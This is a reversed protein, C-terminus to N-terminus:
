NQIKIPIIVNTIGEFNLKKQIYESTDNHLFKQFIVDRKFILKGTFVTMNRESIHIDKCEQFASDIISTGTVIRYEADLGFKSALKMYKKMEKKRKEVLDDVTDNIRLIKQDVVVVSIFIIKSYIGKFSRIINLFTHIGFGNYSGVLQVAIYGNAIKNIKINDDFYVTDLDINEELQNLINNIKNYHKYIALSILVIILTVFLTIWGGEAIKEFLIIILTLVSVSLGILFTFYDQYWKRGKSKHSHYYKVMAFHSITFTIFVNISYMIVLQSISGNTYFLLILATIGIIAIGNKMTLQESFNAFKRPMWGDIAMNAIIRPADIFGTQAGVLLLAGESFITIFAIIYGYSLNNFVSTALVANLTKGEVFRIDTLVYCVYLGGAAISLSLAMYLMTRKASKVKPERMIQLGNSVAELGTYTGGGMSFAKLFILIIGVIGISQMDSNLSVSINNSVQSYNGINNIIGYGILLIHTIIFLIFIPALIKISEKTGRMNLIILVIILIAAFYIKLYHYQNPFYSFIANACSVISVTVTLIYDIILASGSVLGINKGLITSAVIYGGGGNPFHEILKSYSYSIVLVTIITAIAIFIGLYSYQGLARFAEEPGYASSSLGDAGLGIWALFPLLTIKHFIGPDNIDKPDGFVFYKFKTRFNISDSHQEYESM